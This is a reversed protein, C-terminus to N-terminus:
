NTTKTVKTADQQNTSFDGPKNEEKNEEKKEEGNIVTNLDGVTRIDFRTEKKNNRYEDLSEAQGAEIHLHPGTSIGGTQGVQGVIQGNKVEQGAKVDVTSLHMITTYYGKGHDIIVYNGAGKSQYGVYAVKGSAVSHISTGKAASIDVGWHPRNIGLIPHPRNLNMPSTVRNSNVVKDWPIKGDPDNLRLPNNFTYNYPNWGPLKSENPDVSLWVGLKNNYYRAGFYDYSTENDREKETFKYKNTGATYERITEGFPYYDSAYTINNNTTTVSSIGVRISGLHDKVYYLREYYGGTAGGSLDVRGILGSGYINATKLNSTNMDYILLARGTHDYLYYDKTTSGEKYIRNGGDNYKYTFSGSATTVVIPLNFPTLSFGKV